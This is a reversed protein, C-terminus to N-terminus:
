FGFTAGAGRQAAIIRLLTEAHSEVPEPQGARAGGDFSTTRPPALEPAPEPEDAPMGAVARLLDGRARAKEQAIVGFDFGSM